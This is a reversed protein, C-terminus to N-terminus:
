SWGRVECRIGRVPIGEGLVKGRVCDRVDWRWELCREESVEM